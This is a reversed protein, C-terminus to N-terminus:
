ISQPILEVTYGDPDSVMAFKEFFWAYNEHIEGRGIGREAEWESLPVTERSSVGVDKLITVGGERLRAVAASVDPVTFGLHAFGLHPPTNGTSVGVDDGDAGSSQNQNESRHVHYLELLGSTTTMNPIESTKTAWSDLEEATDIDPPPHGLYYITFPGANMTFIIRMGLLNIYFNLSTTPNTIRIALHNLKYSKTTTSPSPNINPSPNFHGVEQPPVQPLTNSPM